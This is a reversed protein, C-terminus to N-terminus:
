RKWIETHTYKKEIKKIMTQNIKFIDWLDHNIEKDFNQSQQNSSSIGTHKFKQILYKSFM